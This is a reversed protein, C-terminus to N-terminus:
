TALTKSELLRTMPKVFDPSLAEFDGSTPKPSTHLMSAERHSPAALFSLTDNLMRPLLRSEECTAPM